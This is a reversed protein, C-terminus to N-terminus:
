WCRTEPMRGIGGRGNLLLEAKFGGAFAPLVWFDGRAQRSKVPFPTSFEPLSALVPPKWAAACVFASPGPINAQPRTLLNLLSFGMATSVGSKSM